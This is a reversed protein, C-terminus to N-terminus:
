NEFCCLMKARIERATPYRKILNTKALSSPIEDITKVTSKKVKIMAYKIEDFFANTIM